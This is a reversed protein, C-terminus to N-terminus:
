PDTVLYATGYGQAKLIERAYRINEVTDRAMPELVLRHEDM